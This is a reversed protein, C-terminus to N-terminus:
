VIDLFSLLLLIYLSVPLGVSVSLLSIRNDGAHLRVPKTYTLKPNGQSGYIM